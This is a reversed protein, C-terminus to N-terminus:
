SAAAPACSELRLAGQGAAFAGLNREAEGEEVQLELWYQPVDRTQDSILPKFGIRQVVQARRAARDRESFLGVSVRRELDGEHFPIAVADGLGGQRLRAIIRAQGQASAINGVYVLFGATTQAQRTTVSPSYGGPELLKVAQGAEGEDRFPGLALCRRQVPAIPVESRLKLAPLQEAGLLTGHETSPASLWHTWAFVALNALLLVAILLRM